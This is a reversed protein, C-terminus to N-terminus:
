KFVSALVKFCFLVTGSYAYLPVTSLGVLVFMTSNTNKTPKLVTGSYAYLPVTSSGILDFITSNSLMM